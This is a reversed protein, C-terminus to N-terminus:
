FSPWSAIFDIVQLAVFSHEDDKITQQLIDLFDLIVDQFPPISLNKSEM